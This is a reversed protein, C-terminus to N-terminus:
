LPIHPLFPPPPARLAAVEEVFPWVYIEKDYEYNTCIADLVTGDQVLLSTAHEIRGACLEQLLWKGGGFPKGDLKADVDAASEVIFVDRGHEGSSAKLMCPYKATSPSAYHQPLYALQGLEEAYKVLNAKNGIRAVIEPACTLLKWGNEALEKRHLGIQVATDDKCPLLWCPGPARPLPTGNRWELTNRVSCNMKKVLWQWENAPTIHFAAAARSRVKKGNVVSGPNYREVTSRERGSRRIGRGQLNEDAVNEGNENCTRESAERLQASSAGGACDARARKAGRRGPSDQIAQKSIM